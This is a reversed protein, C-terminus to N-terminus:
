WGGQREWVLPELQPDKQRRVAVVAAAVSYGPEAGSAPLFVCKHIESPSFYKM